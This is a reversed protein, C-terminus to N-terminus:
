AVLFQCFRLVGAQRNLAGAAPRHILHLGRAAFGLAM